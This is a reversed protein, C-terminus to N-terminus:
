KKKSSSKVVAIIYLCGCWVWVGVGVWGGVWVYARVWGCGCGIASPFASQDTKSKGVYAYQTEKKNIKIQKNEGVQPPTYGIASPFAPSPRMCL